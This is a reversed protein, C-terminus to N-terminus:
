VQLGPYSVPRVTGESDTPAHAERVALPEEASRLSKDLDVVLSTQHRAKNRERAWTLKSLRAPQSTKDFYVGKQKLLRM